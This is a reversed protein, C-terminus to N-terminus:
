RAACLHTGAIDREREKTATKISRRVKPVDYARPNMSLTHAHMILLKMQINKVEMFKRRKTIFLM